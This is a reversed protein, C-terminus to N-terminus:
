AVCSPPVVASIRQSNPRNNNRNCCSSPLVCRTFCRLLPTTGCCEHDITRLVRVDMSARFNIKVGSRPWVCKSPSGSTSPPGITVLIRLSSFRLRMWKVFFICRVHTVLENFTGWVCGRITALSFVCVFDCSHRLKSVVHGFCTRFLHRSM